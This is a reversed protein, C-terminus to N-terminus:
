NRPLFEQLRRLDQLDYGQPDQSKSAVPQQFMQFRKPWKWKLLEVHGDAFSLNAAQGHRDSPLNWWQENNAM